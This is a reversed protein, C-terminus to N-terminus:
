HNATNTAALIRMLISVVCLAHNDVFSKDCKSCTPHSLLHDQLFVESCCWFQCLQCTFQVVELHKRLSPEDDFQSYCVPCHFRLMATIPACVHDRFGEATEFIRFCPTCQFPTNPHHTESVPNGTHPSLSSRRQCISCACAQEDTAGEGTADTSSLGSTSHFMEGECSSPSPSTPSESVKDTCQPVASIPPGGEITNALKRKKSRLPSVQVPFHVSVSPSTKVHNAPNCGCSQVHGNKADQTFFKLTCYGCEIHPTTQEHQLLAEAGTFVTGCPRCKFHHKAEHHQSLAEDSAFFHGCYFCIIGSCHVEHQQRGNESNFTRDCFHCEFTHKADEHQQRAEESNFERDCFHCEFHKAEEHTDRGHETAFERDCFHCEFMPHKAKEHASRGNDTTFTRDCYRCEFADHSDATHQDLAQQSHLVRSCKGCPYAHKSDRHQPSVLYIHHAIKFLSYQGNPRRRRGQLLSRSM